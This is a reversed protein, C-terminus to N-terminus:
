TVELIIKSLETKFHLYGKSATKPGLEGREGWLDSGAAWSM